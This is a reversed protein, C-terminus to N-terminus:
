EFLVGCKKCKPPLGFYGHMEYWSGVASGCSPCRLSSRVYAGWLIAAFFLLLYAYVVDAVDQVITGFALFLFFVTGIVAGALRMKREWQKLERKQETTLEPM